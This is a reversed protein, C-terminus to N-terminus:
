HKKKIENDIINEINDLQNKSDCECIQEIKKFLKCLLIFLPYCLTFITIM